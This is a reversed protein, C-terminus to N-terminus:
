DHLRGVRGAFPGFGHECRKVLIEIRASRAIAAYSEHVAMGCGAAAHLGEFVGKPDGIEEPAPQCEVIKGLVGSIAVEDALMWADFTRIAIGVARQVLFVGSKQAEDVFGRRERDGDEDILLVLAQCNLQLAKRMCSLIRRTLRPGRGSVHGIEPDSMKLKEVRAITTGAPVLRRVLEELAGHFEHKGEAVLLIDM